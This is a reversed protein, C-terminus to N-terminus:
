RPPLRGAASLVRHGGTSACRSFGCCCPRSRRLAAPSPTSRMSASVCCPSRPASSLRSPASAATGPLVATVENALVDRLVGGGVATVVGLAACSALGLGYEHAKITGTVCLLGLGAADAVNALRHGRGTQAVPQRTMTWAGSRSTTWAALPGCHPFARGPALRLDWFHRVLMRAPRAPM